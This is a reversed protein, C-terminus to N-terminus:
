DLRAPVRDPLGAPNETRGPLVTPVPKWGTPRFVRSSKRGQTEVDEILQQNTISAGALVVAAPCFLSTWLSLPSPLRCCVM